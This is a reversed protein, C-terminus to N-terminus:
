AEDSDDRVEGRDWAAEAVSEAGGWANEEGPDGTKFVGRADAVHTGDVDRVTVDAVAVSGGDRVVDASAVLDTTAPALYDIRTDITPTPMEYLSIVAAGGVTDALAYAVGGHAVLTEPTSSHHPALDLRAEAHGDAAATVEIGMHRAFPMFGFLEAVDM